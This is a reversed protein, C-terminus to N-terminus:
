VHIAAVQTYNREANRGGKGQNGAQEGVAVRVKRQSAKGQGPSVLGEGQGRGKEKDKDKARANIRANANTRRQLPRFPLCVAQHLKPRKAHPAGSSSRKTRGLVEPAASRTTGSSSSNHYPPEAATAPNSTNDTSTPTIRGHLGKRARGHWAMYPFSETNHPM